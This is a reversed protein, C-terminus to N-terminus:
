QGTHSRREGLKLKALTLSILYEIIVVHLVVVVGGRGFWGTLLFWPVRWTKPAIWLSFPFSDSAQRRAGPPPLRGHSSRGLPSVM